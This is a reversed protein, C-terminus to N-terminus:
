PQPLKPNDIVVINGVHGCPRIITKGDDAMTLCQVEGGCERCVTIHSAFTQQADIGYPNM